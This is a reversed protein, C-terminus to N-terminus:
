NGVPECVPPLGPGDLARGGSRRCIADARGMVDLAFLDANPEGSSAFRETVPYKVLDEFDARCTFTCAYGPEGRPRSSPAPRAPTPVTREVVGDGEPEPAPAPAPAPEPQPSPVAAATDAPPPAVQEDSTTPAMADIRSAAEDSPAPAVTVADSPAADGNPTGDDGEGVVASALVRSRDTPERAAPAARVSEEAERPDPRDPDVTEFGAPFAGNPGLALILRDADGTVADTVAGGAFVTGREDVRMDELRARIRNERRVLLDPRGDAGFRAYLAERAGRRGQPEALVHLRGTADARVLHSGVPTLTPLDRAWIPQGLPDLKLVQSEAGAVLVAVGDDVVSLDAVRTAVGGAVNRRWAEGGRRDFRAVVIMRRAGSDVSFAALAGGTGDDALVLGQESAASVPLDTRWLMRGQGDLRMLRVDGAQYADALALVVDGNDAPAIQAWATDRVREYRRSWIRNGGPGVEALTLADGQWVTVYAGGRESLRVDSVHGEPAPLETRALVEGDRSMELRLANSPDDPNLGFSVGGVILTRDDVLRLSVIKDFASGGSVHSWAAVPALPGRDPGSTRTPWTLNAVGDTVTGIVRDGYMPGTVLAAVALVAVLKGTVSARVGRVIM